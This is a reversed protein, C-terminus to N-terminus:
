QLSVPMPSIGQDGIARPARARGNVALSVTRSPHSLASLYLEEDREARDGVGMGGCLGHIHSVIGDLVRTLLVSVSVSWVIILRTSSSEFFRSTDIVVIAM